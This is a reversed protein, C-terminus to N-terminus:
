CWLASHYCGHHDSCPNLLTVIWFYKLTARMSPTAKFNAVPNTEPVEALEENRSQKAHYLAMLAIGALLIIVSFGTWLILSNTPKNAVLEEPPWNNTYSIDKGPRDTVTAWTAWWFFACMKHMRGADKISNAPISYAERLDNLAPDNMFLSAYHKSVAKFADAYAGSITIDGTSADYTNKRIENQLRAKFMAKQEDSASSYDKIGAEEAYSNLIFLSEKHLWDATWDPAKYAGHGWVTGLEQGGVSQWVNQGDRIDQGTFVTEGGTTVVKAPIPPADRYIEHGFFLLIGFSITM